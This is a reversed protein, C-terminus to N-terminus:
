GTLRYVRIRGLQRIETFGADIVMQRMQPNAYILRFDRPCDDLSQRLGGMFREFVSGSFPNYMFVITVDDPVKWDLVDQNVLEIPALHGRYRRMNEGAARDLQESLEVGIVRRFPYHSAAFLVIRGKGSGVDLFVDSPRVSSPAMVQKMFWPVFADNREGRPDPIRSTTEVGYRLDFCVGWVQWAAMAVRQTRRALRAETRALREVLEDTFAV